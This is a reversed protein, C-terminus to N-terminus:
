VASPGTAGAGESSQPRQGRRDFLGGIAQAMRCAGACIDDARQLAAEGRRLRRDLVAMTRAMGADDDDLWVRFVGAYVSGIGAVRVVGRPGDTTVGAAELMWRQSALFPLIQSPDPLGASAISKMAARYPRLVDFRSMLVDFLVDRTAQEADRKPARRVVEDDVARTFAILIGTKTDFEHRLTDLSVSAETAIDSLSIERWPREGALKMSAAIIRGRPTSTDLM